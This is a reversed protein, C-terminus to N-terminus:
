RHCGRSGVARHRSAQPDDLLVDPPFVRVIKIADHLCEAFRRAVVVLWPARMIPAALLNAGEVRLQQAGHGVQVDVDPVPMRAFVGDDELHDNAPPMRSGPASKGGGAPLDLKRQAADVGEVVGVPKGALLDIVVTGGHQSLEPYKVLGFAPAPADGGHKRVGEGHRADDRALAQPGARSTLGDVLAKQLMIEELFRYGSKPIM